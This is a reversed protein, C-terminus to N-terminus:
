GCTSVVVLNTVQALPIAIPDHNGTV